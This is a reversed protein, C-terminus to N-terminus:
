NRVIFTWHKGEPDDYNPHQMIQNNDVYVNNFYFKHKDRPGDKYKEPESCDEIKLSHIGPELDCVIREEIYTQYGSWGFTREYLMDEDVYLRYSPPIGNWHCHVDAVILCEM